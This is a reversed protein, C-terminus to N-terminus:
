EQLENMKTYIDAVAIQINITISNLENIADNIIKTKNYVLIQCNVSYQLSIIVNKFKKIYITYKVLLRYLYKINYYYIIAASTAAYNNLNNNYYNIIYKKYKKEIANFTIVNNKLM